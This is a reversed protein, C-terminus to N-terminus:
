SEKVQPEDGSTVNLAAVEVMQNALARSEPTPAARTLRIAASLLIAIADHPTGGVEKVMVIVAMMIAATAAELQTENM